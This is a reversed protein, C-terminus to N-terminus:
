TFKSPPPSRRFYIADIKPIMLEARVLNGRLSVNNWGLYLSYDRSFFGRTPAVIDRIQELSLADPPSSPAEDSTPLSFAHKSHISWKSSSLLLPGHPSLFTMYFILGVLIFSCVSIGIGPIGNFSHSCGNRRCSMRGRFPQTPSHWQPLPCSSMPLCLPLSFLILIMVESCRLAMLSGDDLKAYGSGLVFARPFVWCSM